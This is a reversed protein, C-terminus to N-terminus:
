AKKGMGFLGRETWPRDDRKEEVKEKKEEVKEVPKMKEHLYSAIGKHDEDTLKVTASATKDEEAGEAKEAPKMKEHLYSAIGKHDADTMVYPTPENKEQTELDKDTDTM